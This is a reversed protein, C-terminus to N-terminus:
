ATREIPRYHDERTPLREWLGLEVLRRAAKTAYATVTEYWMDDDELLSIWARYGSRVELVLYEALEKRLREIEEALATLDQMQVAPWGEPKHDEPMENLIRNVLNNIDIM